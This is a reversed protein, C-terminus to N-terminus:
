LNKKHALALKYFWVAGARVPLTFTLGNDCVDQGTRQFSEGTEENEFVYNYEPAFGFPAVKCQEDAAQNNRLVQIAGENKEPCDFQFVTWRKNDRHNETLAYFDGYLTMPAFRYFIRAATDRLQGSGGLFTMTAMSNNMAFSDYPVQEPMYYDEHAYYENNIDWSGSWGRVYTFWSYLTHRFCQNIHHYGYGYDTPHLPVSRRLTEMDNRRGGSACSDIWLGPVNELLYDWYALYGQVYKNETIGLRNEGDNERWFTLPDFNFDQRYCNIGSERLYAAMTECLWTLCDPNTLDLLYDWTIVSSKLLWQPYENAIQTGPRVREPEFWVLFEMGADHAAKSIPALGNPYRAPDAYWTGTSAGWDPNGNNDLKCPYWGADIWWMNAGPKDTKEHAIAELQNSETTRTFEIGDNNNASALKPTVIEGNVRPIVHANFWRRWLNIGRRQCGDFVMMTMRPTRFIEGPALYTSTEEQGAKVTFGGKEGKYECFWQGPWGIALNIGYDNYLIRQYPFAKDCSRGAHPAQSFSVGDELPLRSVTYGEQSYFDGNNHVLVPNNGSIRTDIAAVDALIESNKNGTNTFFVTWEVVPYDQYTLCVAKVELEGMHGIYVTQLINADIKTHSVAADKPLGNFKVGGYTFSVPVGQATKTYPALLEAARTMDRATTTTKTM